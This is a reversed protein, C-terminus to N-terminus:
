SGAQNVVAVFVCAVILASEFDDHLSDDDLFGNCYNALNDDCASSVLKSTLLTQRM